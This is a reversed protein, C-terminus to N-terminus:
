GSPQLRYLAAPRGAAGNRVSLHHSCLALGRYSSSRLIQCEEPRMPRSFGDPTCSAPARTAGRHGDRHLTSPCPRAGSSAASRWARSAAPHPYAGRKRHWGTRLLDDVFPAVLPPPGAPRPHAGIGAGTSAAALSGPSSPVPP